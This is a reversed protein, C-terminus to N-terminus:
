RFQTDNSNSIERPFSYYCPHPDLFQQSAQEILETNKILNYM